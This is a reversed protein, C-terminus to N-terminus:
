NLYTCVELDLLDNGDEHNKQSDCNQDEGAAPKDEDNILENRLQQHEDGGDNNTNKNSEM